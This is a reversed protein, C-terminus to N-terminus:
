LSAAWRGNVVAIMKVCVFFPQKIFVIYVRFLSPCLTIELVNEFGIYVNWYM